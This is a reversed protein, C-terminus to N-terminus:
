PRCRRWWRLWLTLPEVALVLQFVVPRVLPAWVSVQGDGVAGAAGGQRGDRDGHAVGGAPRPSVVAGVTAMVLGGLPAQVPLLMSM